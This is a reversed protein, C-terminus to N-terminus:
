CCRGCYSPGPQLPKLTNKNNKINDGFQEAVYFSAGICSGDDSSAPHIFINNIDTHEYIYSNAKCNMAVGGALCLNKIGTEQVLRAVLSALAEELRTQVAYALDIYDDLLYKNIKEGDKIAFENVGIPTLDPNFSTIYKVLHDTFRSHFENGGFKLFLPDIEFGDPTVRLIKDLRSLWPNNNKRKEGYAALGMLKGEDRNAIFGLYATFAGYFWGLSYPIDYGFVKRLTGEQISYGSVCDEEGHGDVILIIAKEFPSQYYTQYAHAIHHDVFEIEPIPGKHGFIRLHDRISKKIHGPSFKGLQELVNFFNGGANISSEYKYSKKTLLNIKIKALNMFMKGPYKHCGWYFAIKNIDQLKLGQSKLCWLVSRSPFLGYSGKLRNFREENCFSTLVGDRVLCASPNEGFANIGLINM